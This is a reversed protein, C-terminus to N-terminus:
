LRLAPRSRVECPRRSCLGSGCATARERCRGAARCGQLESTSAHPPTPVRPLHLQVVRQLASLHVIYATGGMRSADQIGLLHRIIEQGATASYSARPPSTFTLRYAHLAREAVDVLGPVLLPPGRRCWGLGPRALTQWPGLWFGRLWTLGAWVRCSPHVPGGSMWGAPRHRSPMQLQRM